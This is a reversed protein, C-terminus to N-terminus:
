RLKPAPGCIGYTLTVPAHARAARRPSAATATLSTTVLAAAALTFALNRALSRIKM